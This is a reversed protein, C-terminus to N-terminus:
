DRLWMANLMAINAAPFLLTDIGAFFLFMGRLSLDFIVFLGFTAAIAGGFRKQKKVAIFAASVAINIEIPLSLRQILDARIM